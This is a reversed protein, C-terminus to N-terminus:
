TQFHRIYDNRVETTRRTAKKHPHKFTILIYIKAQALNLKIIKM